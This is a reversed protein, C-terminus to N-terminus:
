FGVAQRSESPGFVATVTDTTVTPVACSSAPSVDGILGFDHLAWGDIALSTKAVIEIPTDHSLDTDFTQNHFKKYKAFAERTTWATASEPGRNADSM